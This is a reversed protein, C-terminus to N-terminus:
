AGECDQDYGAYKEAAEDLGEPEQKPQPRLSTLWDSLEKWDSDNDELVRIIRRLNDDDEESWEAHNNLKESSGYGYFDKVIKRFTDEFIIQHEPVQLNEFYYDLLEDLNSPTESTKGADAVCEKQEGNLVDVIENIKDIVDSFTAGGCGTDPGIYRRELKEIKKGM